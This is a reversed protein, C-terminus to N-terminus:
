GNSSEAIVQNQEYVSKRNTIFFSVLLGAAGLFAVWVYADNIGQISAEM